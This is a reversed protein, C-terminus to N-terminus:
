SFPNQITLKREIVQGDQFDETYLTTCGAEIAAAAILADYIGYGSREAIDLASEHIEATLPIPDPCLVCIWQLAERVDAWSMQVKRRVVSVFENLVQTSVVGGSSLLEQARVKRPDSETIAYVLINTDFFYKGNM